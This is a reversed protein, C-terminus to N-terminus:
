TLIIKTDGVITPLYLVGKCKSKYISMLKDHSFKFDGNETDILDANRTQIFIIFEETVNNKTVQIFQKNHSTLIWM